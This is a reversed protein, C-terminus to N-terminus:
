VTAVAVVSGSVNVVGDLIGCSLTSTLTFSVCRMVPCQVEMLSGTWKARAEKAYAAM